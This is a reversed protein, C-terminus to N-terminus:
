AAKEQTETRRRRGMIEPLNFKNDTRDLFASPATRCFIWAFLKASTGTTVPGRKRWELPNLLRIEEPVLAALIANITYASLAITLWTYLNSKTQQWSETSINFIQKVEFYFVEISWRYYYELLVDKGLMMPDTSIFLRPDTLTGDKKVLQSWVCSVLCNGLMGLYAKFEVFRVERYEVTDVYIGDKKERHPRVPLMMKQLAFMKFARAMTIRGDYKKNRGPKGTPKGQYVARLVTNKRFHAVCTAGASIVTELFKGNAYWADATVIIKCGKVKAYIKSTLNQLMDIAMTLKSKQTSKDLLEFRLPISIRRLKSILVGNVTVWCQGLFKPAMNKKKSHEKMMHAGPAKTSYRPVATDDVVLRIVDLKLYSCAFLFCNLIASLICENNIKKRYIMNYFTTFQRTTGTADICSTIHGGRGCLAGCLLDTFTDRQNSDVSFVVLGILYSALIWFTM